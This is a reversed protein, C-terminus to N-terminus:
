IVETAKYQALCVVTKRLEDVGKHTILEQAASSLTFFHCLRQTHQPIIETKLLLQFMELTSFKCAPMFNHQESTTVPM